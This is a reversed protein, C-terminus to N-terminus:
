VNKINRKYEEFMAYEKRMANYNITMKGAINWFGHEKYCRKSQEFHIRDLYDQHRKSKYYRAFYKTVKNQTM